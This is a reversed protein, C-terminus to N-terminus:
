DSSLRELTMYQPLFQCVSGSDFRVSVVLNDGNYWSKIVVGYGYDDHYVPTGVSYESDAYASFAREVCSPPIEDLFRSPQQYASKGYIVRRKSWSLFLEDKARTLAVYFLRREEEIDEPSDASWPPFVGEELGVIIVRSFELGKTTHMTILMVGDDEGSDVAGELATNELFAVLGDVSSPFDRASAVFERINEQKQRATIDDYGMYYDGLGSRQVLGLMWEDLSAARIDSSAARIFSSFARASSAAKASLFSDAADCADLFSVSNSVAFNVLKDQSRAGIGRAPKNIIRLFSVRDYPNLVLRILSLLDKIEEREYFRLSGVLTYPIGRRSFALEFLRSMFHSRYLIATDEYGNKAIFDAWYDAEEEASDFCMIRLPEGNDRVPKLTKGMRGVNNAVVSSAAELITASSRYNTELRIVRTNEFVNPFSLINKVEAGRFRYISQDDDGVVCVYTDPGALERLLLFQAVNSDQYEDVMIVSFHRRLREKVKEHDRLLLLPLLILDGFDANGTQRLRETYRRYVDPFEDDDMIVSLDDDPLLAYDKARAIGWAYRSLRKKEEGELCSALLARSDDDDYISFGEALGAEAAYLRLVWAGFSHFTRIMVGQARPSFRVAREYMERAAKNTFTVALIQRAPVGVADVLYAIKATIVRTKGSGAGALILLPSGAHLVAERQSPNLSELYEFM